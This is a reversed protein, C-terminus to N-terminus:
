RLQFKVPYEQFLNRFRQWQVTVNYWSLVNFLILTVTCPAGSPDPDARNQQTWVLSVVAFCCCFLLLVCVATVNSDVFVCVCLSM